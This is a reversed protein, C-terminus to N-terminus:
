AVAELYAPGLSRALELALEVAAGGLAAARELEPGAAGEAARRVRALFAALEAPPPPQATRARRRLGQWAQDLAALEPGPDSDAM